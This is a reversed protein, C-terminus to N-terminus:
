IKYFRKYVQKAKTKQRRISKYNIIVNQPQQSCIEYWSDLIATEDISEPFKIFIHANIEQQAAGTPSM